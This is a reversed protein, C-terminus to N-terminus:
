LHPVGPGFWGIWRYFWAGWSLFRLDIINPQLTPQGYHAWLFKDSFHAGVFAMRWGSANGSTAFIVFQNSKWFPKTSSNFTLVTQCGLDHADPLIPVTTSDFRHHCFTKAAGFRQKKWSYPNLCTEVGAGFRKPLWVMKSTLVQTDIRKPSQLEMLLSTQLWPKPALSNQCKVWPKSLILVTLGQPWIWSYEEGWGGVWDRCFWPGQLTGDQFLPFPSPKSFIWVTLGQAPTWCCFTFVSAVKLNAVNVRIGKSSEM